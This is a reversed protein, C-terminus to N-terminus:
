MNRIIGEDMMLLVSLSYNCCRASTSGYKSRGSAHLLRFKTGVGGRWRVTAFVNRGTGSTTIVAQPHEQHHILTDDSIHLATQLFIIFSYITADRKIIISMKIHMKMKIRWNEGLEGLRYLRPIKWCALNIQLYSLRQFCVYMTLVIFRRYLSHVSCFNIKSFSYDLSLSFSSYLSCLSSATEYEM